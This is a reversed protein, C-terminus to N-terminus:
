AGPPDAPLLFRELAKGAAKALTTLRTMEEDTARHRNAWYTGIAGLPDDPVLDARVGGAPEEVDIAQVEAFRAPGQRRRDARHLVPDVDVQGPVGVRHVGV